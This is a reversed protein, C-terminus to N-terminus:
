APLRPIIWSIMSGLNRSQIFLKGNGNFECVIGEGSMLTAKLGGAGKIRYDLTDDFAVIHGTDVTFKGQVNIEHIAGYCNVWLDGTGSAVLWFAGEGSFLSKLGGFKTKIVVDKSSALYSSAQVILSKNGDLQYHVIDGALPPAVM